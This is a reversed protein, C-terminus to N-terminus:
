GETFKSLFQNIGEFTISLFSFTHPLLHRSQWSGGTDVMSRASVRIFLCVSVCQLQVTPGCAESLVCAKM